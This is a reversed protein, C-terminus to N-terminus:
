VINEIDHMTLPYNLSHWVSSQLIKYLENLQMCMNYQCATV